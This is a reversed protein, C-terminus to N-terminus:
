EKFPALFANVDRLISVFSLSECLSEFKDADFGGANIRVDERKPAPVKLLQMLRFNRTFIARGEPANLNIHAKKKPVFKGADCQAWFARVSGFEALFEPAGKEGIGGVGSICDSTDGQLCKGQLFAFPTAYGTKDMLNKHDVRRSDDRLDCWTVGPRVLQIWDKDGTILVIENEASKSTISEVYFGAMDDAEHTTVILQRVGLVELMEAIFPRQAAYADRVEIKKADATRNSKYEPLAEFRWDARGDWLVFPAHGPYDLRLQRLTKIFGFIAQTELDGSTLKTAYHAAYGVSNGDILLTKSM